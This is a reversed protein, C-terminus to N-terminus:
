DFSIKFNRYQNLALLKSNELETKTKDVRLDTQKEIKNESEFELMVEVLTVAIGIVHVHRTLKRAVMFATGVTNKTFGAKQSKELQQKLVNVKDNLLDKNDEFNTTKTEESQEFDFELDERNLNSIKSLLSIDFNPRVFADEVLKHAWFYGWSELQERYSIKSKFFEQLDKEKEPFDNFVLKTQRNHTKGVTKNGM